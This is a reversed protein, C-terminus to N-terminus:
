RNAHVAHLLWDLGWSKVAVWPLSLYDSVGGPKGTPIEDGALTSQPDVRRARKWSESPFHWSSVIVEATM